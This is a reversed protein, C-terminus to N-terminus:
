EVCRKDASTEKRPARESRATGRHAPVGSICGCPSLPCSQLTPEPRRRRPRDGSTLRQSSGVLVRIRLALVGANEDLHDPLSAKRNEPPPPRFRVPRSPNAIRQMVERGGRGALTDRPHPGRIAPDLSGACVFLSAASAERDSKGTSRTSRSVLSSSAVEVKALNREVM